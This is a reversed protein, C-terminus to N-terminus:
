CLTCTRVYPQSQKTQRRGTAPVAVRERTGCVASRCDTLTSLLTSAVSVSLPTDSIAGTPSLPLPGSGPADCGGPPTAGPVCQRDVQSAHPVTTGVKEPTSPSQLIALQSPAGGAPRALPLSMNPLHQCRGGFALWGCSSMGETGGVHKATGLSAWLKAPEGSSALHGADKEPELLGLSAAPSPQPSSSRRPLNLQPIAFLATDHGCCEQLYRLPWSIPTKSVPSWALVTDTCQLFHLRPTGGGHGLWFCVVPFM